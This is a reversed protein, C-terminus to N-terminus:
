KKSGKEREARRKLYEPDVYSHKSGHTLTLSCEECDVVRLGHPCKEPFLRLAGSQREPRTPPEEDQFEREDLKQRLERERREIDEQQARVMGLPTLSRSPVSSRPTDVHPHRQGSPNTGPVPNPPLRAAALKKSNASPTCPATPVDEESPRFWPSREEEPEAGGDAPREDSENRVNRKDM